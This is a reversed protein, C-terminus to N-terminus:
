AADAFNFQGIVGAANAYSQFSFEPMVFDELKTGFSLKDCVNNYLQITGGAGTTPDTAYLNLGFNLVPGILPSKIQVSTGTAPLTYNYNFLISAGTDAAAFTYVGAAVSYQGVTPGSAVLTLPLGTAAYVCGQDATWTTSNTVTVTYPTAPVAHVEGVATTTQGAALTGGLYLANFARGSIRAVKAKGVWKRTGAGMAVPDANQGYLAKMTRQLDLSGEQLLGINVPAGGAPTVTMIGSGFIFM